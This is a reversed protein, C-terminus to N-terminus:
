DGPRNALQDLLQDLVAQLSQLQAPESFRHTAVKDLHLVVDDSQLCDALTVATRWPVETDNMGHLLRVPQTIALPGELRLHQRADEILHYPYIVPDSAYPNEMAIQGNAKFANRSVDDLSQWILNETFDPAAAIGVLAAVRDPRALAVNLMIWGGLSSGVLIQQGDTLDDIVAIADRTWDSINTELFERDSRGHGSYDFRLFARDHHKAWAELFLAKSGDMNSGHGCLFVVGPGKGSVRNYAIRYSQNISHWSVSQVYEDKM